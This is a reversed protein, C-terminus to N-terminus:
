LPTLRLIESNMPSSEFGIESDEMSAYYDAVRNGTATTLEIMRNQEYALIECIREAM